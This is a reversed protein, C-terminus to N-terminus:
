TPNVILMARTYSLSCVASIKKITSMIQASANKFFKYTGKLKVLETVQDDHLFADLVRNITLNTMWAEVIIALYYYGIMAATFILKFSRVINCFANSDSFIGKVRGLSPPPDFHGAM